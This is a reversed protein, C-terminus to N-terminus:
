SSKFVKRPKPKNQYKHVIKPVTGKFGLDFNLFNAGTRDYTPKYKDLSNILPTKSPHTSSRTSPHTSSRTSPHTSSRTSSRTSPHTSSRTSPRKVVKKVIEKFCCMDKNKNLKKVPYEPPCKNKIPKRKKPCTSIVIKSNEEYYKCANKRHKDVSNNYLEKCKAISNNTRGCKSLWQIYPNPKVCKKKNENYVCTPPKCNM